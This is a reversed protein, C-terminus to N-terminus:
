QKDVKCQKFFVQLDFNYKTSYNSENMESENQLFSFALVKEPFLLSHNHFLSM